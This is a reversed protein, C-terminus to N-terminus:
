IKPKQKQPKRSPYVWSFWFLKSISYKLKLTACHPVIKIEYSSSTINGGFHHTTSVQQEYRVFFYRPLDTM